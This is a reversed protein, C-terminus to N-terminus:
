SGGSAAYMVSSPRKFQVISSLVVRFLLASLTGQLVVLSKPKYQSAVSAFTLIILWTDNFVKGLVLDTLGSRKLFVAADSALVRGTNAADVQPSFFM